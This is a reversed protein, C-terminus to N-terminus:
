IEIGFQKSCFACDVLVIGNEDRMEARQDEPLFMHAELQQVLAQRQTAVAQDNRSNGDM